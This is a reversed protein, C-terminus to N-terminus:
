RDVIRARLLERLLAMGEEWAGLGSAANVHGRAGVSVFGAGWARACGETFGPSAYPDNTSGVVLAPFPFPELPVAEFGRAAAPFEPGQPDPPAVLLAARVAGRSAHLRAWHAVQLCALSHAVLVIGPGPDSTDRSVAAELSAVWAEREPHEWDPEEVRRFGHAREWLTQWHGPGSGGYGPLTFVPHSFM